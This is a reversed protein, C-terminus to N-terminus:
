EFDYVTVEINRDLLTDKIINEIVGWSGGALGCGIRPMHVSAKQEKAEAAVRSLCERVATYRIPSKGKDDRGVKHQAIMNIVMIGGGVEVRQNHGLEFFHKSRFWKLYSAEPAPWKASLALVFGAGWAGIDNCIHPIIKKGEGVPETADGKIYNIDSM